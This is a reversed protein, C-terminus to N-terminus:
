PPWPRRPRRLAIRQGQTSTSRVNSSTARSLPAPELSRFVFARRPRKSRASRGCRWNRASSSMPSTRCPARSPRTCPRSRWPPPGEPAAPGGPPWTRPCGPRPRARPGRPLHPRARGAEGQADELRHSGHERVRGLVHLLGQLPQALGRELVLDVARADLHVLRAVLDPDERAMELVDGRAHGLDDLPCPRQRGALQHHLALGDGEPGVTPGCGKWTVMRRKPRDFSTSAARRSSGRGTRRRRHGRGPPRPGARRAATRRASSAARGPPPPCPAGAAARSSGFRVVGLAEQALGEVRAM